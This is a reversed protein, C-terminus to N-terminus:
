IRQLASVVAKILENIKDAVNRVVVDNKIAASPDNAIQQLYDNLAKLNVKVDGLNASANVSVQTISDVISKAFDVLQTVIQLKFQAVPVTVDIVRTAVEMLSEAVDAQIKGFDIASIQNRLLDRAGLVLKNVANINAEIIVQASNVVATSSENRLAFLLSRINELIKGAAQTTAAVIETGSQQIAPINRGANALLVGNIEVLVSQIQILQEAVSKHLNQHGEAIVANASSLSNVVQELAAKTAVHNAEVTERIKGFINGTATQINDSIQSLAPLLFGIPTAQM